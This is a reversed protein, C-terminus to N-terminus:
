WPHNVSVLAIPLVGIAEVWCTKVVISAQRRGAAIQGESEPRTSAGTGHHRLELCRQDQDFGPSAEGELGKVGAIHKGDGANGHAHPLAERTTQM